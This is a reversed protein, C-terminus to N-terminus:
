VGEKKKNKGACAPCDCPMGLVKLKGGAIYAKTAAAKGIGKQAAILAARETLEHYGCHRIEALAETRKM